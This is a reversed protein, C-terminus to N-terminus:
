LRMQQPFKWWRQHLTILNDLNKFYNGIAKQEDTSPFMLELDGLKKGSIEAFTSGAAVREAKTKISDAWQSYSIRILIMM